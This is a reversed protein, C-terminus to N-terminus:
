HKEAKAEIEGWVRLLNGGLIKRIDAESYGRKMLGDVLVPYDKVSKLDVPLEGSVGDFDSGIGIHDVGVLKVGYDIQDLVADVHLVPAPHDKAFQKDFAEIEKSSKGAKKLAAMQARKDAWERSQKDSLFVTGFSVQIVGGEKAIAVALEDSLNRHWTPTFHRLGSHSAIVPVDTVRLVDRVADDSVHSVDVIIGLRNMEKVVQEGFPSLGGWKHTEVYSSDAIRNDEGHCLTIYRVGRDFFFQLKGLDDGVPGGNEMGMPLMIKGVNKEVDKPSLLLAFKDPARAILSRVADIQLNAITWAKGEQDEEASTYISMWPVDLGGEKARPYDFERKPTLVTLDNWSDILNEPADIHTDVILADQALKRAAASPEAAHVIGFICLPLLGLVYRRM